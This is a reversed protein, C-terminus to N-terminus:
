HIKGFARRCNQAARRACWNLTISTPLVMQWQSPNPLPAMAKQVDFAEGVSADSNIKDSLAQLGAEAGAWNDIADRMTKVVDSASVYRALDRSVVVLEGYRSGNSLTALKM